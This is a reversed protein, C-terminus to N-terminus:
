PRLLVEMVDYTGDIKFFAIKIKRYKQGERILYFYNRQYITLIANTSKNKDDFNNYMM